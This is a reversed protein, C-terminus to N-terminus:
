SELLEALRQLTARMGDEAQKPMSGSTIMRKQKDQSVDWSERVLTGGEVPTLEYRWIRGGILGGFAATQWAIRRDQEYEIVTNTTRYPIFLTEKRGRMAMSFKAGKTLPVSQRAAHNLSDSGDFSAHRGADALLAFIKDPPAKVVREVSVTDADM